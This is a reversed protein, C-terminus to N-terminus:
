LFPDEVFWKTIWSELEIGPELRRELIHKELDIEQVSKKFVYGGFKVLYCYFNRYRRRSEDDSLFCKYFHKRFENIQVKGNIRWIQAANVIPIGQSDDIAFYTDNPETCHLDNYFLKAVLIVTWKWIFFVALVPFVFIILLMWLVLNVFAHIFKHFKM